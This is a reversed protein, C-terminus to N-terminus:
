GIGERSKVVTTYMHHVKIAIIRFIDLMVEPTAGMPIKGSLLYQNNELPQGVDIGHSIKIINIERFMEERQDNFFPCHVIMHESDELM